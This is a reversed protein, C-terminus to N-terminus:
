STSVKELSPEPIEHASARDITKGIDNMVYMRQWDDFSGLILLYEETNETPNRPWVVVNIYGEERIVTYKRAEITHEAKLGEFKIFM